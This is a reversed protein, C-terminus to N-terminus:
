KGILRMLEERSALNDLFAGKLSSTIMISNQKQVGRMRMCLHQAEIICAAGKAKLYTMIDTTVQQCIREQIQLRKSYIDLLRALKSIGIVTKDPIYAIHAKGYFPLIHHECISYMEIDKLLIIEDYGNPATFTKFIDEPNKRYGSLMFELASLVRKPTEILGERTPDEGVVQLLRIVADEGPSENKEWFYKVWEETRNVYYDPMANEPANQGIHLCAFDYANYRLRTKGSDVIDDVVLPNNDLTDVLPIQLKHSLAMAVPLGGRMVPYIGSYKIGRAVIKANLVKIDEKLNALNYDM